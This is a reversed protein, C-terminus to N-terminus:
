TTIDHMMTVTFMLFLMMYLMIKSFITINILDVNAIEFEIDEKTAISSWNQPQKISTSDNNFSNFINKISKLLFM